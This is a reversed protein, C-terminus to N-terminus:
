GSIAALQGPEDIDTAEGLDGVEVLQVETAALLERAGTDGYLDPVRKLLGGRLLVPHGPEGSYVARVADASGRAGVIREILTASVRPQDGLMVLASDVEDGLAAVGARLSAALGETWQECRVIRARGLKLRPAITAANSGLVVVVESLSPADAAADL